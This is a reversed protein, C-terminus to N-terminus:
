NAVIQRDRRPRQGSDPITRKDELSVDIAGFTLREVLLACWRLAGRPQSRYRERKRRSAGRFFDNDVIRRPKRPHDIKTADLQMRMRHAGAVETMRVLQPDIEIRTRADTPRVHACHRELHLRQQVLHAKTAPGLGAPRTPDVDIHPNIWSPGEVLHTARRESQRSRDFPARGGQGSRFPPFLLPV